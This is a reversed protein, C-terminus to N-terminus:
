VSDDGMSDDLAGGPPSAPDLKAARAELEAAYQRLVRARTEDAINGAVWRLSAARDRLRVATELPRENSVSEL